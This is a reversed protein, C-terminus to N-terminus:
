HPLRDTFFLALYAAGWVILLAYAGLLWVRAGGSRKAERMPDAGAAPDIDSV